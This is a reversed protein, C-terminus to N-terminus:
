TVSYCLYVVFGDVPISLDETIQVEQKMFEMVFVRNFEFDSIKRRSFSTIRAM